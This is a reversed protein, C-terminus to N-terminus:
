SDQLSKQGHTRQVYLARQWAGSDLGLRYPDGPGGTEFFTASGFPSLFDGCNSDAGDPSHTLKSSTQKQRGSRDDRRWDWPAM